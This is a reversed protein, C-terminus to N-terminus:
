IVEERERMSTDDADSGQAGKRYCCYWMLGGVVLFVIAFFSLLAVLAHTLLQQALEQRDAGLTSRKRAARIAADQLNRKFLGSINALKSLSGSTSSKPVPLASVNNGMAFLLVM